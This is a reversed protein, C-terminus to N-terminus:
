SKWNKPTAGVKHVVVGGLCGQWAALVRESFLLRTVAGGVPAECIRMPIERYVVFRNGLVPATSPLWAGIAVGADM